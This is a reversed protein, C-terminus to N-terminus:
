RNRTASQHVRSNSGVAVTNIDAVKHTFNFHGGTALDASALALRIVLEGVETVVHAIPQEFTPEAPIGARAFNGDSILPSEWEYRITEGVGLGDGLSPREAPSSALIYNSSERCSGRMRPLIPVHWYGHEVDQQKTADRQKSMRVFNAMVVEFGYEHAPNFPWAIVIGVGFPRSEIV